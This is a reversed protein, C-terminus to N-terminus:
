DGCANVLGLLDGLHELEKFALQKDHGQDLIHEVTTKPDGNTVFGAYLIEVFALKNYRGVFDLTGVGTGDANEPWGM